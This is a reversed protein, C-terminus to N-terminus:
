ILPNKVLNGRREDVPHRHCKVFFNQGSERRPRVVKCLLDRTAPVSGGPHGLRKALNRRALRNVSPLLCFACRNFSPAADTRASFLKDPLEYVVSVCGSNLLWNGSMSQPPGPSRRRVARLVGNCGEM